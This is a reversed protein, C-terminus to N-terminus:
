SIMLRNTGASKPDRDILLTETNSGESWRFRLRRRTANFSNYKRDIVPELFSFLTAMVAGSSIQRFTFSSCPEFTKHQRSWWGFMEDAATGNAVGRGVGFDSLSATDFMRSAFLKRGSVHTFSIQDADQKAVSWDPHLHFNQDYEHPLEDGCRLIDICLLWEAPKVLLLRAHQHRPLNKISTECAFIGREHVAAIVGSGYPKSKFRPHNKGDVMLTNHARTSEVYQRRPDAYWFGDKFEPSGTQTRGLYGFRGADILVDGGNERWIFSGADSQKHVRSHFAATQALYSEPGKVFWYGGEAYVAHSPSAVDTRGELKIAFASPPQLDTDGLNAISGAGDHMWETVESMKGLLVTVSPDTLINATRLWDCAATLMSQYMPSHELHVGESTFHRSLLENLREKGQAFSSQMPLYGTIANSKGDVFRSAGCIQSIAQLVGHNSHASFNEEASLSQQHRMLCKILKGFAGDDLDTRGAAAATLFALRYFRNSVATDAAVFSEEEFLPDGTEKLGTRDLPMHGFKEEWQLVADFLYSLFRDDGTKAYADFVPELPHWSQLFLLKSRDSGQPTWDIAPGLRFELDFLTFPEGTLARESSQKLWHQPFYSIQDYPRLPQSALIKRLAKARDAANKKSSRKKGARAEPLQWACTRWCPTRSYPGPGALDVERWGKLPGARLEALRPLYRDYNANDLVIWGGAAVKPLAAELCSMRARGDIIVFDFFGDDFDDIARVYNEFSFTEFGSVGSAYAANRGGTEVPPLARYQVNRRNRDRLSEEVKAFWGSDHEISIVEAAREAFFITSGGSGWEFIRHSKKVNAKLFDIAAFTVWPRVDGIATAGGLRSQRWAAEYPAWDPQRAAVTQWFGAAYVKSDQGRQPPYQLLAEADSGDAIEPTPKTLQLHIFDHMLDSKPYASLEFEFRHYFDADLFPPSPFHQDIHFGCEEVISVYQDYTLKNVWAAQLPEGTLEMYFQRWVSSQFLLHPWPFFVDRYRHSAKAGRYLNAYIYAKGGPKLMEFAAKMAAQPHVIHEFVSFSVIRDFRGLQENEGSCIDHVIHTLSGEIPTDWNEYSQVDVGVAECAFDRALARSLMGDGCGIELVRLGKLGIKKDLMVARRIGIGGTYETTQPRPEAVVPKPRYEENLSKFLKLDFEIHSIGSEGSYSILSEVSYGPQNSSIQKKDSLDLSTRKFQLQHCAACKASPGSLSASEAKQYTKIPLPMGDLFLPNALELPKPCGSQHSLARGFSQTSKALDLFYCTQCITRPPMLAPQHAYAPYIALPGRFFV